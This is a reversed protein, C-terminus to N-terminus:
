QWLALYWEFADSIPKCNDALVALPFYVYFSEDPLYGQVNLWVAPGISLVYLPLAVLLGVALCGVFPGRRQHQDDTM